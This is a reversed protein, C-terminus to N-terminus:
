VSKPVWGKNPGRENTNSGKPGINVKPEHTVQAEPRPQARPTQTEKPAPKRARPRHNVRPKHVEKAKQRPFAKPMNTGKPVWKYSSNASYKKANYTSTTHGNRNCYNCFSFPSSMYGTVKHFFKLYPKVKPKVWQKEKHKYGLGTKDRYARQNMLIIDLM